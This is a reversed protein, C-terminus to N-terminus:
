YKGLKYRVIGIKLWVFYLKCRDKSDNNSKDRSSLDLEEVQLRALSTAATYLRRTDFAEFAM